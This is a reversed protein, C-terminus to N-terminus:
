MTPVRPLPSTLVPVLRKSKTGQLIPDILSLDLVTILAYCGFNPEIFGKLDGNIKTSATAIAMTPQALVVWVLVCFLSLM